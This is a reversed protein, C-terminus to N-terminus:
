DERRYYLKAKAPTKEYLEALEDPIIQNWQALDPQAADVWASYWLSALYFISKKM